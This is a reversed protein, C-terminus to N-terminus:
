ASNVTKTCFMDTWVGLVMKSGEGGRFVWFTRNKLDFDKNWIM